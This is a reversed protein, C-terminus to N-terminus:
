GIKGISNATIENIRDFIKLVQSCSQFHNQGAIVLSMEKALDVNSQEVVGQQVITLKGDAQEFGSTCTYVGNGVQNMGATDTPKAIFLKDAESGAVSIAGLRDVTFDSSELQIKSKSDNLVFGVGPLTLNGESDLEFQGNKTLFENGSADQILFFGEGSIGIDTNRGTAELNGQSFDTYETANVNMYTSKGIVTGPENPSANMRLLLHDGFTSGITEQSKFGPTTANAINNSMVNISKQQTLLGSAATYFGSEM